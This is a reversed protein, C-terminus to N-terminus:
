PTLMITFREEQTFPQTADMTEHDRKTRPTNQWYGSILISISTAGEGALSELLASLARAAVHSAGTVTIKRPAAAELKPLTLHLVGDVVSAEIADQDVTKPLVM